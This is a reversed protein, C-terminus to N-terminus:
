LGAREGGEKESAAIIQEIAEAEAETPQLGGSMLESIRKERRAEKLEMHRERAAQLHEEAQPFRQELVQKTQDIWAQPPPDKKVADQVKVV